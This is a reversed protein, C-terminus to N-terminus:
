YEKKKILCSSVLVGILVLGIISAWIPFITRMTQFYRFISNGYFEYPVSILMLSNMGVMRVATEDPISSFYIMDFVVGILPLIALFPFFEVVVCCGIVLALCIGVWVYLMTQNYKIEIKHRQEIRKFNKKVKTYSYIGIWSYVLLIAWISFFYSYEILIRLAAIAIVGCSIAGFFPAKSNFGSITPTELGLLNLTFAGFPLAIMIIFM